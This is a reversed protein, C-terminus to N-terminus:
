RKFIDSRLESIAVRNEVGRPVIIDTEETLRLSTKRDELSVLM